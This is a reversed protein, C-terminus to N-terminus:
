STAGVDFHFLLFVGCLFVDFVAPHVESKTQPIKVSDAILQALYESTMNQRLKRNKKSSTKPRCQEAHM